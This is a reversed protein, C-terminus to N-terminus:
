EEKNKEEKENKVRLFGGETGTLYATQPKWGFVAFKSVSTVLRGTAMFALPLIVMVLFIYDLAVYASVLTEIHEEYWGSAYQPFFNLFLLAPFIILGLILLPPLRFYCDSSDGPIKGEKVMVVKEETSFNWYTGPGATEGGSKKLMGM